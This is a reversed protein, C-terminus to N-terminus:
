EAQIEPLHHVTLHTYRSLMRFDRHGSISAVEAINLGKEFLRSVAEHRLDHFHLDSIKTKKLLRQWSLRFGNASVDFLCAAVFDHELLSELARQARESLPITRERGTKTIPVRLRKFDTTIHDGRIGLIEGRRMATELAIVIAPRLYDSRMGEAGKLLKEEEQPRLRRQRAPNSKPKRLNALPNTQLPIAWESIAVAFMHQLPALQRQVTGPSVVKLREDRYQAFDSTTLSSLSKKSLSHTLFAELVWREPDNSRKIPTIEDKYRRVLDGLTKTDLVRPDVQLARRDIEVDTARAWILADAKTNFSKTLTPAGQRRIQVQWKKGRKRVNAM